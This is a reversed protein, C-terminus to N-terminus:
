LLTLHNVPLGLNLKIVLSSPKCLLDARKSLSQVAVARVAVAM